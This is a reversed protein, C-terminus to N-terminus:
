LTYQPIEMWEGDKFASKHSVIGAVTMNLAAEIGVSPKRDLLISEVFDHTLYGHSGGHGGAGVGKPLTPKRHTLPGVKQQGYVRGKEGHADPTGWSVAMRSMGGESTRMLAIETGFRNRYINNAAQLHPVISPMGLCSVRTFRGGSVCVYYANSHTPYWQPPVGKRWGNADVNRTIPNYGPFPKPAYHYYEGESYVLKGFKGEAYKKRWDYCDARFASTEFMMYKKGSKKVAELLQEAEDLGNNGFVAPVASAVHKGKNLAEIALRAHSPADTAIFVADLSEDLLMTECSDYTKSCQCARALDARRQPILDTVAAVTVNPHSQFFFAAGFQCMGYGAIGVRLKGSAEEVELKDTKEPEPQPTKFGEIIKVPPRYEASSTGAWSAGIGVGALRIFDRRPFFPEPSDNM